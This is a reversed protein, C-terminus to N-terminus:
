KLVDLPTRDLTAKEPSASISSKDLPIFDAPISHQVDGRRAEIFVWRNLQQCLLIRVGKEPVKINEWEVSMQNRAQNRGLRLKRASPAILCSRRGVPQRHAHVQYPRHPDVFM